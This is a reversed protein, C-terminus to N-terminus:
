RQVMSRRLFTPLETDAVQELSEIRLQRIREDAITQAHDVVFGTAIVTIKVNDGMNPDIATGFIVEADPDVVEAIVQAAMHVERLGLTRSGTINFLVGRAGQIGIDLIPSHIAQRAAEVARNDGSAVGIAMLAPGAESMITRIDNFDLNIEGPTVILESIGAIGQRLVDDAQNFAEEITVNQDCIALLRENPITILTDVRSQLREVGEAARMRRRSGEFDFPRTVLAITLAGAEKSVEAIVPAAGTGTGGGMGATIFVMEAGKVAEFLEERSEEAARLGKNPDGGVGLGRTVRDGIRIRTEAECNELAQGDTNVAIFEVGEISEQIMRNIANCGGGGVGVVKIQPLGDYRVTRRSLPEERVQFGLPAGSENSESEFDHEEKGSTENARPCEYQNM